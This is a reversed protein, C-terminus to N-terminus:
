PKWSGLFPNVSDQLKNMAAVLSSQLEDLDNEDSLYGKNIEFKIRSTKKGELPQWILTSGFEDEIQAKNNKLHEFISKNETVKGGSRNIYVEVRSVDQNVVYSFSVGSLNAAMGMWNYSVPVKEKGLRSDANALIREWFRFRLENEISMNRREELRKTNIQIQFSTTEPLPILQQIDLLLPGNSERYPQMRVCRIDLGRDRLWLVTTTLEKGFDASALLIRTDRGFQEEDADKWGLFDLIDARAESTDHTNQGKFRAHAEVLQEFTMCSVMAAYRLAQLEMHGGDATRKLEVVVLNADSDICLLDISRSSDQWDRFEEAIVMLSPDLARINRLLLQQIDKREKMKEAEFSTEPVAVIEQNRIEFIPM